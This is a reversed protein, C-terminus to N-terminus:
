CDATATGPGAVARSLRASRAPESAIIEQTGAGVQPHDSRWSMRAGVGKQAGSFLIETQPDRALWPSWEGWNRYDNVLPFVVSAPAAISVRREVHVRDPLFFAVASFIGAFISIGILLRKIIKM